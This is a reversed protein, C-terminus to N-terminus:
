GTRRRMYKLAAATIRRGDSAKVTWTESGYLLVPLDLTNCLKIRTKQLTKKPRFVNNLIGIIKLYNHLKKDIDLEKVCSIMNGVYNFSNVKVIIRNDIVIKNRVPDRGKLHWLIKKEISTTLGYETIIQNLKHAAKQLNDETDAIIVQDDAFLLTSLTVHYLSM